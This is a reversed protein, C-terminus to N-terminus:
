FSDGEAEEAVHAVVHPIREHYPSRLHAHIDTQSTRALAPGPLSTKVLYIGECSLGSSVDGQCVIGFSSDFPTIEQIGVDPHRHAPRGSKPVLTDLQHKRVLDVALEHGQCLVWVRFKHVAQRSKM